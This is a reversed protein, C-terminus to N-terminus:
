YLKNCKKCFNYERKNIPEGCSCSNNTKNPLVFDFVINAAANTKPDSSETFTMDSDNVNGWSCGNKKINIKKPFIGYKNMSLGTCVDEFIISQYVDKSNLINNIVNKSIYYGGGACYSVDPIHILSKNLIQSECKGFHYSCNYAKSEASLGFYLDSKNQNICDLIKDLNLNIDDDTKFVGSISDSYNENIFKMAYYVKMALSEYNDGVKLYVINNVKDVKYPTKLKEDGIFYYFIFRDRNNELIYRLQSEREVSKKHSLILLFNKKM